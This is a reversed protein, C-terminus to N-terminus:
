AHLQVLVHLFFSVFVLILCSVNWAAHMLNGQCPAQSESAPLSADLTFAQIRDADIGARDAAAMVMGVASPSVDSVVAQCTPNAKLVPLISSGCGCGIEAIVQPPDQICLDLFELLLYRCM